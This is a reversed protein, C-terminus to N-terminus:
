VYRRKKPEPPAILDKVPISETPVLHEAQLKSGLVIQYLRITTIKNLEDFDKFLCTAPANLKMVGTYKAKMLKGVRTFLPPHTDFWGTDAALLKATIKDKITSPMHQHFASTVMVLDDPLARREWGKQAKALALTGAAALMPVMQLSTCMADSGVIRAAQRDADYEAQRSLQMSLAHSILAMLKLILRAILLVLQSVFGILAITWHPREGVMAALMDDMGSRGYAMRLFWQNINQIVFSLRMTIGQSFHGFEHAMVGTFEKLDMAQVLPLGITLVLKRSVLGFMGNDIHASANPSATLDIRVPRPAGM